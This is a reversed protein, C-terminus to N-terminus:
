SVMEFFNAELNKEMRLVFQGVSFENNEKIHYEWQAGFGYSAGVSWHHNLDNGKNINFKTNDCV